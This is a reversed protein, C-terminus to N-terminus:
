LILRLIMNMTNLSVDRRAGLYYARDNEFNPGIRAVLAGTLIYQTAKDKIEALHADAHFSKCYEQAKSYHVGKEWGALYCGYPSLDIWSSPCNTDASCAIWHCILAFILDLKKQFM